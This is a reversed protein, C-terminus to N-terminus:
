IERDLTKIIQNIADEAMPALGDWYDKTLKNFNEVKCASSFVEFTSRSERLTEKQKEITELLTQIYAEVNKSVDDAIDSQTALYLCRLSKYCKIGEANM